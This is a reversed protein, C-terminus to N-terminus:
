SAVAMPRFVREARLYSLCVPCDDVHVSHTDCEVWVDWWNLPSATLVRDAVEFNVFAREGTRWAFVNRPSVGYRGCALWLGGRTDLGHEAAIREALHVIAAALPGAPLRADEMRVGDCVKCTHRFTQVGHRLGHRYFHTPTLPKVQWCANCQREPM